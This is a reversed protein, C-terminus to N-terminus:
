RHGQCIDDGVSLLPNNNINNAQSAYVPIIIRAGAHISDSTLGNLEKVERIYQYISKYHEDSYEQAISWLTDSQAVTIYTYGKIMNDSPKEEQAKVVNGFIIISFVAILAIVFAAIGIKKMRRRRAAAARSKRMIESVSMGGNVVKFNRASLTNMFIGGTNVM